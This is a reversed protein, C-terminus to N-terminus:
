DSDENDSAAAPPPTPQSEDPAPPPTSAQETKAPTDAQPSETSINWPNQNVPKANARTAWSDPTGTKPIDIRAEKEIDRAQQEIDRLERKLDEQTEELEAMRVLTTPLNRISDTVQNFERWWPSKMVKRLVKGLQLALERAREPGILVFGVLTIIVLEPLGLGCFTDM